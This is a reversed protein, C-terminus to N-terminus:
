EDSAERKGTIRLTRGAKRTFSQVVTEPTVSWSVKGHISTIGKAFGISDKLKNQLEEKRQELFRLEKRTQLVGIVLEDEEPSAPRIGETPSPYKGLLYAKAADSYDIEPAVNKEIHDRWFKRVEDLMMAQLEEDKKIEFRRFDNGGILAGLHWTPLGTLMSYYQCQMLYHTPVRDGSDGWEFVRDLGATKAEFGADHGHNIYGDPTGIVLPEKPHEILEDTWDVKLGTDEEFLQVVVPEQLKGIRMRPTVEVPPTLGKKDCYISFRTKYPSMGFLGAIETGSIGQLRDTM